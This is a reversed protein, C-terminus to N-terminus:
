ATPLETEATTTTFLQAGVAAARAGHYRAQKLAQEQMQSRKYDGGDAGFDFAAAVNAAKEQWVDAAAAHLDYTAVWEGHTPDRGESDILPHSEIVAALDSDMYTTIDPEACMRRLRSVQDATAAM